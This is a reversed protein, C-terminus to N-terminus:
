GNMPRRSSVSKPFAASGCITPLRQKINYRTPGRGLELRLRRTKSLTEAASPNLLITTVDDDTVSPESTSSGTTLCQYIRPIRGNIGNLYRLDPIPALTIVLSSQQQQFVAYKAVATAAAEHFLIRDAFYNGSKIETNDDFDKLLSRDTYLKFKADNVLEVFGQQDTVYQQRANIDVSQLGRQLVTQRDDVAVATAIVDLAKTKRNIREGSELCSPTTGVVRQRTSM